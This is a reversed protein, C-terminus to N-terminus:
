LYDVSNSNNIKRTLPPPCCVSLFHLLVVANEHSRAGISCSTVFSPGSSVGNRLPVNGFSETCVPLCLPVMELKYTKQIQYIM